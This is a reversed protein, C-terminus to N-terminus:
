PTNILEEFEFSKFPMAETPKGNKDITITRFIMGAFEMESTSKSKGSIGLMKQAIMFNIQKAKSSIHFENCLEKQTKGRYINIKEKYIEELPNKMWEDDSVLPSYSPLNHIM